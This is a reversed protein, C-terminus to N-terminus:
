HITIQSPLWRFILTHAELSTGEDDDWGSVLPGKEWGNHPM